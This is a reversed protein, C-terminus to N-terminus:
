SQRRTLEANIQELTEQANIKGMLDPVATDEKKASLTGLIQELERCMSIVQNASNQFFLLVDTELEGLDDPITSLQINLLSIATLGSDIMGPTPKKGLNAKIRENWIDVAIAYELRKLQMDWDLTDPFDITSGIEFDGSINVGLASLHKMATVYLDARATLLLQLNHLYQSFYANTPLVKLNKLMTERRAVEILEVYNGIIEYVKECMEKTDTNKIASILYQMLTKFRAFFQNNQLTVFFKLDYDVGGHSVTGFVNTAGGENRVFRGNSLRGAVSQLGMYLWAAFNEEDFAVAKKLYEMTKDSDKELISADLATELCYSSKERDDISDSELFAEEWDIDDDEIEDADLEVALTDGYTESGDMYEKIWDMGLKLTEIQLATMFPRQLQQLSLKTRCVACVFGGNEEVADRDDGCVDCFINEISM